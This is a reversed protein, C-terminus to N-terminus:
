RDVQLSITWHRDTTQKVADTSQGCVALLDRVEQVTLAAHLSQRFLQRQRESSDTAYLDVLREVEADSEPRLLDRVFLLGGSQTVRLMEALVDLPEPIHHVISNSCTVVFEENRYPMRKADVCELRIRQTFDCAEVNKRALKLMEEALDIAVIKHSKSRDILEIPIQATGTGVDLWWLPQEAVESETRRYAELLDDVFRRNVEAHDMSDYDVAEEATDMLEPELVRSLM